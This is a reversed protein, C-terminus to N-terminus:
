REKEELEHFMVQEDLMLVGPAIAQHQQVLQAPQSQIKIVEDQFGQLGQEEQM